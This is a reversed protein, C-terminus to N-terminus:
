VSVMAQRSKLIKELGTVLKEIVTFDVPKKLIRIHKPLQPFEEPHGSLIVFNVKAIGQISEIVKDGTLRPMQLDLFVLDIGHNPDALLNVAHHGNTLLSVEHKGINNLMQFMMGRMFRDDEVVLIHM